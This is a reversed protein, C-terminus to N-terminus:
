VAHLLAPALAAAVLLMVSPVLLLAVVLQIKPAAKAAAEARARGRAERADKALAALAEAPPAGLRDARTLVTVLAPVGDCPARATLDELATARPVGMAIRAAARAFETALEGRHRRGVEALARTPPLGAELAVRLLDLTDPLEIAMARGRARTRLLLWADLAIFGAAAGAPPLALGLRGPAGAALVFGALAGAAAAGAKVSMADPVTLPAGAAGLRANLDRPAAPTGVRRGLALLARHVRGRGRRDPRADTRARRAAALDTIGVAAPAGAVLALMGAATM